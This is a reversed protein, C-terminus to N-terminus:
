ASPLPVTQLGFWAFAALFVTLIVLLVGLAPGVKAMDGLSTRLGLAAVALVLSWRSATTLADIVSSPLVGLSNLVVVFIFGLVFLPIPASATEAALGQDCRGRFVIGILLVVPALLVVRSLKAVAATTGAEESLTLGAGMVQAVDHISAGFFLGALQDSAGIASSFAPYAIMAITSLGTVGVVVALTDREKDQRHPLAAAIALAASAGCIAVAGACLVSREPHMGLLHGVALGVVITMLLGSAIVAFVPWGLGAIEGVTIMAGLCIIGIRLITKSAFKTGADCQTGAAVSQLAMGFLLAMLMVPAGLQEAAFAAALAVVGTLALGPLMGSGAAVGPNITVTQGHVASM